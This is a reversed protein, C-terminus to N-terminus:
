TTYYRDKYMNYWKMYILKVPAFLIEGEGETTLGEQNEHSDHFKLAFVRDDDVLVDGKGKWIPPDVHLLVCERKNM